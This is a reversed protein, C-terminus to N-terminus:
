PGPPPPALVLGPAPFYLYGLFENVYSKHNDFYKFHNFGGGEGHCKLRFFGSTFLTLPFFPQAMWYIKQRQGHGEEINRSVMKVNTQSSVVWCIREIMAKKFNKQHISLM